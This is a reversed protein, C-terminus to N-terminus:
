REGEPAKTREERTAAREERAKANFRNMASIAGERAWTLAAECATLVADDVAKAEDERFGSLVHDRLKTEEDGRGVGIKLRAYAATGFAAEISALGNHGGDSGGTRLRLQGVPLYIDDVVVLVREPTVGHRTDFEVLADGSLNMYTQPALLVLREGAGGPVRGERAVYTRTTEYPAAAILSALRDLVAFGVNHRTGAYEPGPNGLGVVVLPEV